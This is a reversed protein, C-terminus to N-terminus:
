SAIKVSSFLTAQITALLDSTVVTDARRYDHPGTNAGPYAIVRCGASNAAAVGDVNDEIVVVDRASLSLQNLAYLYIDPAPKSATGVQADTVLDFSSGGGTLAASVHAVTAPDTASIFATKLGTVDALRLAERVGDRPTLKAAAMDAQFLMTKTAHVAAADVPEGREKAFAAVRAAGGSRVLLDRYTKADWSWDLGHARFARNFADRQMDSTEVVSGISGFFLAKM